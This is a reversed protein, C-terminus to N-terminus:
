SRSTPQDPADIGPISLRRVGRVVPQVLRTVVGAELARALATMMAIGGVTLAIELWLVSGAHVLAIYGVMSLLSGVVFVPLSNRGMETLPNHAGFRAMWLWLPSHVLLYALALVHLLRTAPLASKHLTDIWQPLVEFSVRGGMDGVMWVAAFIAYAVALAGAVPHWPVSQGRVRLVGLAIGSVFLLQWAFPNFFWGDDTPFNPMDIPWLHAALYLAFSAGLMLRLDRAALWMLAPVMLILFVYLPLINFYGLQHGGLMVGMLGAAPEALVPAVGILELIENNGILWAAGAFVGVALLTSVLHMSYLVGARSIAKRAVGAHDGRAMRSFFAFAAAIGALLVFLEAADSFGFNRSTWNEFRNGPMHNIFISVLAVGRLWDIRHDRGGSSTGATSSKSKLELPMSERHRGVM